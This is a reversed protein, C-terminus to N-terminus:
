VTGGKREKRHKRIVKRLRRKVTNACVSHTEETVYRAWYFPLKKHRSQTLEIDPDFTFLELYAEM